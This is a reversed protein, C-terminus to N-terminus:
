TNLLGPLKQKKRRPLQDGHSSAWAPLGLLGLRTVMNHPLGLLGLGTVMNHPLGLLGLRTAM